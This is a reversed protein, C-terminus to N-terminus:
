HNLLKAIKQRCEMKVTGGLSATAAIKGDPSFKVLYSENSHAEIRDIAKGTQASWITMSGDRHVASISNGDPSFQAAYVTSHTEFSLIKNGTRCDWYNMVRDSTATLIAKGDPSFLPQLSSGELTFIEKGTFVDWIKTTGNYDATLITKGDPSFQASTIEDRHGIPVVLRLDQAHVKISSTIVFVIFFLARHLTHYSSLKMTQEEAISDDDIRTQSCNSVRVEKTNM